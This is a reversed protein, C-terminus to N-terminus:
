FKYMAQVRFQDSTYKKDSGESKNKLEMTSYFTQFSLKANHAYNLRALYETSDYKAYGVLGGVAGRTNENSGWVGELSFRFKDLFKVGVSALLASNEGAFLSYGNAGGARGPLLQYGTNILAGADEVTIVGAKDKDTSFDVYGLQADVALGEGLGAAAKLEVGYYTSDGLVGLVAKESAANTSFQAKGTLKVADLDFSGTVEGAVTYKLVNELGAVWVQFGVPAYSGIAAVGYLNNEGVKGGSVGDKTPLGLAKGDSDNELNDFAVAALVLGPLDTNVVKVGTGSMDDTFFTGLTQRGLMVETNGVKYGLYYHNVDFSTQTSLNNGQSYKATNAWSPDGSLDFSDYKFGVVGYFGDGFGAKFDAETTFRHKANSYSNDGPKVSTVVNDYRLRSYGNVEVEGIADALSVAGASAALSGAALAAVLSLKVSKM